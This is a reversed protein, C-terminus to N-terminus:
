KSPYDRMYCKGRRLIDSHKTVLPMAVDVPLAREIRARDQISKGKYPSWSQLETIDRIQRSLELQVYETQNAQIVMEPGNLPLKKETAKGHRFVANYVNQAARMPYDANDSMLSKVVYAIATLANEAYLSMPDDTKLSEDILNLLSM